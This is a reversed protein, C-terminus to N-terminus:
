IVFTMIKLLNLKFFLPTTHELYPSSGLEIESLLNTYNKLLILHTQM